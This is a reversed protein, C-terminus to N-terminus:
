CRTAHRPISLCCVSNYTVAPHLKMLYCFCKGLTTCLTDNVIHVCLLRLVSGTGIRCVSLSQLMFCCGGGM